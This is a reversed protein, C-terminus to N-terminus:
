REPAYCGCEVSPDRSSCVRSLTADTVTNDGKGPGLAGDAVHDSTFALVHAMEHMVLKELHEPTYHWPRVEDDLIRITTDGMSGNTQALRGETLGSGDDFTLRNDPSDAIVLDLCAAANWRAVASELPALLRLESSGFTPRPPELAVDELAAGGDSGCAVGFLLAATSALPLVGVTRRPALM